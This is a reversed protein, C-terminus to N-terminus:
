TSETKKKLCMMPRELVIIVLCYGPSCNLECKFINLNVNAPISPCSGERLKQLVMIEEYITVSIKSFSNTIPSTKNSFKDKHRHTQVKLDLDLEYFGTILM